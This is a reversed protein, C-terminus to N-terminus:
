KTPNIPITERIKLSNQKVFGALFDSIVWITNIVHVVNSMTLNMRGADNNAVREGVFLNWLLCEEQDMRMRSLIRFAQFDAEAPKAMQVTVSMPAGGWEGGGM